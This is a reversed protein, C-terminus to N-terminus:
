VSLLDIHHSIILTDLRGPEGAISNGLGVSSAAAALAAESHVVSDRPSKENEYNM